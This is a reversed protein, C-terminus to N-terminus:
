TAPPQELLARLERVAARARDGDSAQIGIVARTTGDAIDLSAWPAGRPMRVAVVEAWTLHHQTFGNVVTLGETTADVRCRAMGWAVVGYLGALFLITGIQFPTFRSRVDESFGLWAFASVLVLLSGFFIVALRVGLPRWRRPLGGESVAPM